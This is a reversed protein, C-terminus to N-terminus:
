TTAEHELPYKKCAAQWAQGDSLGREGLEKCYRARRRAFDDFPFKELIKAQKRRVSEGWEANLKELLEVQRSFYARREDSNDLKGARVERMAMSLSADEFVWFLLQDLKNTTERRIETGREVVIYYYGDADVEVSPHAFDASHGMTPLDSKRAKIQRGLRAIIIEIEALPKPETENIKM